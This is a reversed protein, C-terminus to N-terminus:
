RTAGERTGRSQRSRRKRCTPGCTRRTPRSALPLRQGCGDCRRRGPTVGEVPRFDIIWRHKPNPSSDRRNRGDRRSAHDWPSGSTEGDFTFRAAKLFSPASRESPEAIMQLRSFGMERTVRAAAALLQSSAHKSGDGALRHVEAVQNLDTARAMPFGVIIAGILREDELLGLSFRHFRSMPHHRHDRHWSRVFEDAERLTLPVIRRAVREPRHTGTLRKVCLKRRKLSSV